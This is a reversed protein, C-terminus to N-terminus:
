HVIEEDEFRNRVEIFQSEIALFAAVVAPDFHGGSGEVIIARSKEHSFAEKYCRKSTLADYVDGLALIRAALPINEGVRGYPYGSGDWKEHHGEAIDIGMRIFDNGPHERDVARLTEAGVIAHTQMIRWEEADLKGPKLLVHDPVGVKGIDHLPSAAYINDIFADDIEGQYVSSQQLILSILRCYERMRELHAGTEPDRSEALKSMAFIAGHQASAIEGMQRRVRRELLKNHQTVIKSQFKEQDHLRKKELSAAIRARLITPNFPKPLYDEAGLEICHVVSDLENQASIVIVPIDKTSALGKMHQLVQRGDMVPMQIDLLVLDYQSSQVRQWADSGDYATEVTYGQKQLRRSLMDRNMENDDVVLIQPM